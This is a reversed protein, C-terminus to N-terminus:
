EYIGDTGLEIVAIINGPYYIFDFMFCFKQFFNSSM